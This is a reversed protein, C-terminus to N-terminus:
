GLADRHHAPARRTHGERAVGRFPTMLDREELRSMFQASLEIEGFLHRAFFFKEFRQAVETSAQFQGLHLHFEVGAGRRLGQDGKIFHHERRADHRAQGIDRADLVRLDDAVRLEKRSSADGPRLHGDDAGPADAEVHRFVQHLRAVFGAHAGIQILPAHVGGMAGATPQLLLGRRGLGGPRHHHALPLAIAHAGGQALGGAPDVAGGQLGVLHLHEAAHGVLADVILAQPDAFAIRFRAAEFHVVHDVAGSLEALPVQHFREPGRADRHMEDAARIQGRFQVGLAGDPM